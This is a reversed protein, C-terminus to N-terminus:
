SIMEKMTLGIAQLILFCSTAGADLTGRSREGLRAARGIKAVMDETSKWGKEAATIMTEIGEVFGSNQAVALALAAAAPELTDVLTKDGLKAEGLSCIGDRAASIMAMLETLDIKETDKSVRAMERFMTGYLPGMSGGIDNLLTNGLIKLSESMSLDKGAIKKEVLGFGKDMNIGHDGDGIAGDLESLYVKNKHITEILKEVIIKGDTNLFYVAM